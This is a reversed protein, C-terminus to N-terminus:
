HSKNVKLTTSYLELFITLLIQILFTIEAISLFGGFHNYPSVFIFSNITVTLIFYISFHIFNWKFFKSLSYGSVFSALLFMTFLDAFGGWFANTAHMAFSGASLLILVSSMVIPYFHSSTMLNVKNKNQYSHYIILFGAVAFALNSFSNAPQKIFGERAAECFKMIGPRSKGFWTNFLGFVLFLHSAIFVLIPVIFLLRKKM